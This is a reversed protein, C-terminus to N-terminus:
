TRGNESMNLYLIMGFGEWLGYYQCYPLIGIRITNRPLNNWLRHEYLLTMFQAFKM